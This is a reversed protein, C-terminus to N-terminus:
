LATWISRDPLQDTVMRALEQRYVEASVEKGDLQYRPLPQLGEEGAWAFFSTVTKETGDAQYRFLTHSCGADFDYQRVMLGDRLPYDQCSGETGDSQWCLLKGDRYCFVGNYGGPDDVRQLLLERIGNGDLDLCTYEVEGPVLVLAMWEDLGWREREGDEVLSLDGSLLTDYAALEPPPTEKAGGCGTFALACALLFGGIRRRRM